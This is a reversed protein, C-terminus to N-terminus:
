GAREWVSVRVGSIEDLVRERFGAAVLTRRFVGVEREGVWIREIEALDSPTPLAVEDVFTSLEVHSRRLAVDVMGEFAAPYASLAARPQVSGSGGPDLLFAEGESGHREFFQAIARLDLEQKATAARTSVLFSVSALCLVLAVAIALRLDPYRVTLRTWATGCLIAVAPACVTLYRPAFLPLGAATAALLGIPLLTAWLVLGACVRSRVGGGRVRALALAAILGTVLVAVVPADGFMPDVLISAADLQERAIWSVQGRQGALVVVLPLAGVGPALTGTLRRVRAAAPDRARDIVVAFAPLVAASFVFTWVALSGLVVYGLWATGRAVTASATHVARLLLLLAILLLATAIAYSRAEASQLAVRPLLLFVLASALAAHVGAGLRLAVRHVASTAVATAIVSPLRTALESEGFAGIWVHMFAAYVAHVADRNQIFRAFEVTDLRALQLTAAEDFWYSPVWAAPLHVAMALVFLSGAPHAVSWLCVARLLRAARAARGRRRPEGPGGPREGDSGPGVGPALLNM